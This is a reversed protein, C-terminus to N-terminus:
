SDPWKISNHDEKTLDCCVSLKIGHEFTPSCWQEVFMINETELKAKLLVILDDLPIPDKYKNIIERAYDIFTAIAMRQQKTKDYFIKSYTM